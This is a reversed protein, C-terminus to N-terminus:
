RHGVVIALIAAVLTHLGFSVGAVHLDSAGVLAVGPLGAILLAIGPALLTWRPSHCMM